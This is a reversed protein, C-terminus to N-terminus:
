KYVMRYLSHIVGHQFCAVCDPSTAMASHPKYMCKVTCFHLLSKLVRQTSFFGLVGNNQTRRLM